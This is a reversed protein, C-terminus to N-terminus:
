PRRPTRAALKRRHIRRRLANALLVLTIVCVLLAAFQMASGMGVDSPEEARLPTLTEETAVFPPLIASGEHSATALAVDASDKKVADFISCEWPLPPGCIPAGGPQPSSADPNM